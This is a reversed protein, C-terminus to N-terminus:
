PDRPPAKDGDSLSADGTTRRLLERLLTDGEGAPQAANLPLDDSAPAAAPEALTGRVAQLYLRELPREIPELALIPTDSDLLARLVQAQLEQNNPRVSISNPSCQVAPSLQELRERLEMTLHNVQIRVSAGTQGLTHVDVEAALRGNVLVGVRDCLYEVEDLYHTCLFITHGHARVEALLDLVERQGAPDLGSTPEDILLLDPETLLAQAIGLRQLMGKSFAGLMRNAAGSLGVRELEEEVRVLLTQADMDSFRGMFRLYERATYRTHYRLREPVYGLRGRVEEPYRAGLIRMKGSTPKLFGLLLHIFTSKGSGNPGLLGYVSGAIVNVTLGRLVPLDGYSKHLNDTEIAYM